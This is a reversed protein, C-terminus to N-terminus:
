GCLCQPSQDEAEQEAPEPEPERWVEHGRISRKHAFFFFTGAPIGLLFGVAHAAYSVRAEFLQPFLLVLALASANTLRRIPSHGRQIFFYMTLWFSAMFYVVGSIGVLTTEPPYAQLVILNTLGGALLSLVPFAWFGFYGSLLYAFGTFFLSNAALHGLDAHLLVTTFARWYEQHGFVRSHSASLHKSINFLDHQGMTFVVMLLSLAYLSTLFSGQAPRRSLLTKELKAVM